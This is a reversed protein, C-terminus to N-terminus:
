CSFSQTETSASFQLYYQWSIDGLDESPLAKIGVGVGKGGEKREREEGKKREVM